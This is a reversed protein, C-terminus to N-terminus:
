IIAEDSPYRHTLFVTAGTPCLRTRDGQGFRAHRWHCPRHAPIRIDAQGETGVPLQESLLGSPLDVLTARDGISVCLTACVGPDLAVIGSLLVTVESALESAEPIVPIAFASIHSATRDFNEGTLKVGVNDFLLTNMARNILRATRSGM